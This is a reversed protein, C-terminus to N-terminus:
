LKRTVRGKIVRFLTTESVGFAKAIELPSLDTDAYAKRIAQNRCQLRTARTIPRYGPHRSLIAQVRQRTPNGDMDAIQQHTLGSNYLALFEDARKM